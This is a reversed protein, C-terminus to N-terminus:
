ARLAHPALTDHLFGGILALCRSSHTHYPNHGAGEIVYLAPHPPRHCLERVAHVPAVMDLEGHILLTPLDPRLRAVVPDLEHHLVCHELTSSISRFTFKRADAVVAWPLRRVYRSTMRWGRTRWQAWNAALSNLALISRYSPSGDLLIRHASDPDGFRPVNLLVLAAVRGPHRAALEVALVAGLSHGVIRVPQGAESHQELFGLLSEVFFGTTYDVWPKPSEGFGPLDPILVRFRRALSLIAPTWYRRSATIGHLALLVPAGEPGLV